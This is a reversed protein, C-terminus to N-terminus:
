DVLDAVSSGSSHSKNQKIWKIWWIQLARDAQIVRIRNSGSLGGSRCSEIRKRWKSGYTDVQNQKM